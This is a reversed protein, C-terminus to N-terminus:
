FRFNASLIKMAEDEDAGEEWQVIKEFDTDGEAALDDVEVDEQAAMVELDDAPEMDTERRRKRRAYRHKEKM